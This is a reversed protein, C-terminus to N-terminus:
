INYLEIWGLYEGKRKDPQKIILKQFYDHFSLKNNKLELWIAKYELLLEKVILMSRHHLTHKTIEFDGLTKIKTGENNWLDILKTKNVYQPRKSNKNSRANSFIKDFWFLYSTVIKNIGHNVLVTTNDQENYNKILQSKLTDAVFFPITDAQMILMTSLDTLRNYLYSPQGILQDIDETWNKVSETDSILVLIDKKLTDLEISTKYIENSISDVRQIYNHTEYESNEISCSILINLILIILVIKKM